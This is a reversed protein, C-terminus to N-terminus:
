QRRGCASFLGILQVDHNGCHRRLHYQYLDSCGWHYGGAYSHSSSATKGTLLALLTIGITFGISLAVASAEAKKLGEEDKAGFRQAVLVAFGSTLGNAFGLVLFNLSGTTGVAALAQYGLYRGVIITDVMNYLQQFVNGLLVPLSFMILLKLPSGKTMDRVKTNSM